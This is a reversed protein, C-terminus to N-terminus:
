ARVEVGLTLSQLFITGIAGPLTEHELGLLTQSMVMHSDVSLVEEIYGPACDEKYKSHLPRM